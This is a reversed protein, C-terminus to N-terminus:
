LVAPLHDIWMLNLKDLCAILIFLADAIQRHGQEVVGNAAANYLTPTIKRINCHTFYLDTWKKNEAVGDVVLSEPM